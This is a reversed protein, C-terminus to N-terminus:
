SVTLLFPAKNKIGDERFCVAQYDFVHIRKYLGEQVMIEMINGQVEGFFKGTDKLSESVIIYGNNDLV